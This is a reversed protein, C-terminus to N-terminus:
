NREHLAISHPHIFSSSPSLEATANGSSLVSQRICSSRKVKGTSFLSILHSRFRAGIFAYFVPNICCHFYTINHCVNLAYDVKHRIECEIFYAVNLEEFTKLLVMINYPTWSLFFVFVICLIVKVARHKRKGKCYLLVKIIRVYCFVNVILPFLCFLGLQLFSSVLKWVRIRTDPHQPYECLIGQGKVDCTEHFLFAPISVLISIIWVTGVVMSAHGSTRIKLALHPHVLALYRDLTLITLLMISSYFGIFYVGNVIKCMANGFIWESSHYVALFPLSLAFITDSFALNLVCINTVTKLTECKLLIFLVFGNGIICLTFWLYFLASLVSPAIIGVDSINCLFQLPENYEPYDTTLIEKWDQITSINLLYREEM